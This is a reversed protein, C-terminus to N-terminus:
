ESTSGGVVVVHVEGPGHMGLIPEMAIDATRSPGSVVMVSSTQRFGALGALRQGSVWTELDPVIQNSRVAALHVPPLLSPLRPKGRGSQLVLSGTAALAADVGTIGIRVSPDPAAEVQIKQAALQERFGELPIHEFAWSLIRRDDGILSLMVEIADLESDVQHVQCDIAQAQRVFRELLGAPTTDQRPVMHLYDDSAEPLHGLVSGASRLRQLISERAETM